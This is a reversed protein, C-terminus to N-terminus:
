NRWHGAIRGGTTFEGAPSSTKLDEKSLTQAIEMALEAITPKRFITAISLNAKFLARVRNIVQTARLSDGGLEFFNDAPGITEAGLVERYIGAIREELDNKLAADQRASHGAFREALKTRNVKGTAGKPIEDVIFVKGPVKFAAIRDLLYERILAETLESGHRLVVAAGADDGLSAHPVRFAAAQAIEPHSLLVEEIELPSIKEGGRNIIEKLRGTLYIYGDKDLFGQDGTRLWGNTFNEEHIAAKNAYNAIVTAGRIVIEGTVGRPLVRRRDDMVAVQTGAPLGVSGTKREKPPLPNSAIQHAAETMGYAEIVPVRFVDELERAVAAPLAASCSRIFRLSHQEITSPDAKASSLIAQQITPVATYWTPRCEELWELIKEADFGPTCVVSGGASMSALLAGVLGHIHFLPMVNLCRDRDSLQSNAAINVASAMLQGHTLAVMKPRSTTGSTHLILAHDQARPVDRRERPAGNVVRLCFVGAPSDGLPILEVVPISHKQAAAVAAACTGSQVILAGARLDSLYFDFEDFQYAPNLPACTAFSAVGAFAVAMEPGNPVVLAVRDNGGIGLRALNEAVEKLHLRFRSYSLPSRGPAAIAVADASREAWLDLLEPLTQQGLAAAQNYSGTM